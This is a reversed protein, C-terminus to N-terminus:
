GRAAAAVPFGFLAALKGRVMGARGALHRLDREVEAGLRAVEVRELVVRVAAGPRRVRLAVRNRLRSARVARREHVAVALLEGVREARAVGDRLCDEVLDLLALAHLRRL